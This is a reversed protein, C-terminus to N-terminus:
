AHILSSVSLVRKLFTGTVLDFTVWEPIAWEVIVFCLCTSQSWHHKQMWDVCWAAGCILEALVPFFLGFCAQMLVRVLLSWLISCFTLNKSFGVSKFVRPFVKILTPFSLSWQVQFECYSFKIGLFTHLPHFPNCFISGWERRGHLLGGCDM